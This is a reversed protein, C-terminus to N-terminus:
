CSHLVKSIFMLIIIITHTIINCWWIAHLQEELEGSASREKIFNTVKDLEQTSGCEFGMSDHFIFGPNSKFILQTNINHVGRQVSTLCYEYCFM